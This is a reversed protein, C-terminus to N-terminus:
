VGAQLVTYVICRYLVHVHVYIYKPMVVVGVLGTDSLNKVCVPIQM